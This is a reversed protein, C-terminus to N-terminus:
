ASSLYRQYTKMIQKFQNIVRGKGVQKDPSNIISIKSIIKAPKNILYIKVACVKKSSILIFVIVEFM